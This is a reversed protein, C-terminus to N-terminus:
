EEALLSMDYCATLDDLPRELLGAEILIEQTAEWAAPNTQGLPQDSRWLELSNELVQRERLTSIKPCIPCTSRCASAFAADPDALTDALGRQIARVM